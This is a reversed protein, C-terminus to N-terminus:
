STYLFHFYLNYLYKPMAKNYLWHQNEQTVNKSTLSFKIYGPFCWQYLFKFSCPSHVWCVEIPIAWKSYKPNHLITNHVNKYFNMIKKKLTKTNKLANKFLTFINLVCSCSNKIWCLLVLLIYYQEVM